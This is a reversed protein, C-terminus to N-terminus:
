RIVELTGDEHIIQEKYQGGDATNGRGGHPGFLRHEKTVTGGIGAPTIDNTNIFKKCIVCEWGVPFSGGLLFAEHVQRWKHTCAKSM